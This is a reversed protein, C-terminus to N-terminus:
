ERRTGSTERYVFTRGLKSLTTRSDSDSRDTTRRLLRGAVGGAGRRGCESVDRRARSLRSFLNAKESDFDIASSPRLVRPKKRVLGFSEFSGFRGLRCSSLCCVVMSISLGSFEQEGKECTLM